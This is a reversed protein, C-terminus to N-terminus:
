KVVAFRKTNVLAEVMMEQAQVVNKQEASGSTETFEIVSIVPKDTQGYVQFVILIAIILFSVKRM